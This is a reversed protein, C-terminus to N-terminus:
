AMKGILSLQTPPRATSIAYRHGGSDTTEPHMWVTLPVDGDLAQTYPNHPRRYSKDAIYGFLNHGSADKAKDEIIKFMVSGSDRDIRRFKIRAARWEAEENVYSLPLLLTTYDESDLILQVQKNETTGEDLEVSTCGAAIPRAAEELSADLSEVTQQRWTSHIDAPPLISKETGPEGVKASVFMYQESATEQQVHPFQNAPLDPAEVMKRLNEALVDINNTQRRVELHSRSLGFMWKTFLPVSRKLIDTLLNSAVGITLGVGWTVPDSLTLIIQTTVSGREPARVTLSFPSNARRTPDAREGLFFIRASLEILSQWGELSVRYDELPIQGSEAPGGQIVIRLEIPEKPQVLTKPM